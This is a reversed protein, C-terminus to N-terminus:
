CKYYGEYTEGLFEPHYSLKSKRLGEIGMDEERNIYKYSTLNRKAFENNIIQYAGNIDPMAKEINIVFIEKNFETGLTMAAVQGDIRILGGLVGLEKRKELLLRVAEIEGRFEEKNHISCWKLQFSYFEESNYDDLEEYNWRGEYDKLFRNLHNKKGHYKKGKLEILNKALYIYNAYDRSYSLEFKDPMERDIIEKQWPMVCYLRIKGGYSEGEDILCDLANRFGSKEGVPPVYASVGTDSSTCKVYLYGNYIAFKLDYEHQWIYLDAFNHECSFDQENIFFSTIAEKDNIEISKFKLRATM